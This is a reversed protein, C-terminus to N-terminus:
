RACREQGYVNWGIRSFSNASGAALSGDLGVATKYPGSKQAWASMAKGLAGRNTPAIDVWIDLDKTAGGSLLARAQGGIMLFRVSYHDLHSLFQLHYENLM